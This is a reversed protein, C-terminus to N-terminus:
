AWTCRRSASTSPRSRRSTPGEYWMTRRDVDRKWDYGSHGHGSCFHKGEGRIIIAGVEDDNTPRVLALDLHYLMQDTQANAQSGRNLSIIAVKGRREYLVLVV